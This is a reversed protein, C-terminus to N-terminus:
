SFMETQLPRLGKGLDFSVTMLVLCTVGPERGTRHKSLMSTSLGIPRNRAETRFPRVVVPRDWSITGGKLFQSFDLEANPPNM